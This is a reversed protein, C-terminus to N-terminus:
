KMIKSEFDKVEPLEYRKLSGGFTWTILFFSCISKDLIGFCINHNTKMKINMEDFM